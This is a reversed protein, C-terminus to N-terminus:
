SSSTNRNMVIKHMKCNFRNLKKGVRPLLSFDHDCWKQSNQRFPTRDTGQYCKFLSHEQECHVAEPLPERSPPTTTGPHGAGVVKRCGGGQSTWHVMKGRLQKLSLWYAMVGITIWISQLQRRLVTKQGKLPCGRRWPVKWYHLSQLSVFASLPKGSVLGPGQCSWKGGVTIFYFLLHMGWFSFFIHYGDRRIQWKNFSKM